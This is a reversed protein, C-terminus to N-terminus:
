GALATRLAAGNIIRVLKDAYMPDTAYGAQALGRAFATADAGTDLVAAYRPQTKLLRAYDVFAEAYSGYARFKEVTKQPAGNVYETTAAEVVPGSWGRGAKIGFLNHSSRGAADRIEARGWGTELAAQAVMLHPAIGTERAAAAAHPWIRGVFDRAQAPVDRAPVAAEPPAGELPVVEQRAAGAASGASAGLAPDPPVLERTLQRAMLDALGIGRAAMVQAYQQDLMSQYLRTQSSDFLTDQGTTERMSKLLMNLFLAEFQQAAARVAGQPDSKAQARVRDLAASEAALSGTPDSTIVSM